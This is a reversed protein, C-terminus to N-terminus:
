VAPQSTIGVLALSGLVISVFPLSGRIKGLVSVKEILSRTDTEPLDKANGSLARQELENNKRLMFLVTYPICAFNVGASGFFLLRQLTATAGCNLAAYIFSSIGVVLAPTSIKHGWAEFQSWQRALHWASGSASGEKAPWSDQTNPPLVLANALLSSVTINTAVVATSSTIGILGALVLNQDPALVM